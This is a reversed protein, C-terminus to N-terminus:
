KKKELNKITESEITSGKKIYNKLDIADDKEFNNFPITQTENGITLIINDGEQKINKSSIYINSKENENLFGEKMHETIFSEKTCKSMNFFVIVIIAVIVILLLAVENNMGAITHKNVSKKSKTM